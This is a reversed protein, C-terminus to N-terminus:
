TAMKVQARRISDEDTRIYRVYCDSTWRGLTKVLHDPIDAEAASTAAGIRFSHGNYHDPNLNLESLVKKVSQVFYSRDLAHGEETLYLPSLPDAGSSTRLKLYHKMHRVPCISSHLSHIPITIGKRFIDTKSEKLKLKFHEESMEVDGICLNSQADFHDKRATTFEGCRLFGSFALTCASILMAQKYFGTKSSLIRVIDTLIHKTIPLRKGSSNDQSKKVGTLTYQLQHLHAPNTLPCTINGRIYHYRIGALYIKITQYRLGREVCFAVFYVLAKEDVPVLQPYSRHCM